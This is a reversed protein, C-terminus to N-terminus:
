KKRKKVLNILTDLIKKPERSKRFLERSSKLEGRLVEKKM